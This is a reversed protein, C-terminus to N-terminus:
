KITGSLLLSSYIDLCLSLLASVKLVKNDSATGYEKQPHITVAQYAEKNRARMEDSPLTDNTSQMACKDTSPAPMYSPSLCPVLFAHGVQINKQFREEDRFHKSTHLEQCLFRM